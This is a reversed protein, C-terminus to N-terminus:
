RDGAEGTLQAFFAQGGLQDWHELAMGDAVRWIDISHMVVARGTPPLGMFPGQFTARYRRGGRRAAQGLPDVGDVEVVQGAQVGEGAADATVLGGDGVLEGHGGAAARDFAVDAAYSKLGEFALHGAAGVEVQQRNESSRLCRQLEPPQGTVAASHPRTRFTWNPLDM